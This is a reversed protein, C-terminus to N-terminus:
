TRDTGVQSASKLVEVLASKTQRVTFLNLVILVHMCCLLVCHDIELVVSSSCNTYVLYMM